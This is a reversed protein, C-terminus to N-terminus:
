PAAVREVEWARPKKVAWPQYGRIDGRYAGIDLGNYLPISPVDALFLKHLQDFSAQRKAPATDASATEILKLAAPNDWVKRPQKAKDGTVMEYNLAADLRASYPFTMMQYTGANYRDLQTAWEVVSLQAKVGVAQLMAQIIVASNYSQPYRKTTLITLGQGKYGAEGLLKQALAPDYNWGQKQAADHYPSVLPVISNNPQALGETVAAALQQYDIAHALAQRMKPNALVPDKTQMLLATMSMVPAHAVKVNPTAQLVPVDSNSVDEIIDINGRQLAAKATSDDPVILFRVEDVLPRKSGTYGDRKGDLNSYGAFKTLRVYEGRKWEALEFPGTGIPKDWSGDARVSDKSLIGTGGCDARALTALFLSSPKDIHYVVTQTDPAEVGTVKVAGRGDFESACRWGSNAATYHQWTWLVDASSMPKGNHFKIGDRLKFTYTKGDPSIDVSKALLPRVEADEGYAVLGEVIHLVVADSNSDRNVGPETSRIDATLSIRLPPASQAWAAGAMAGLALAVAADLINKKM